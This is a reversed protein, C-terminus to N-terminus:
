AGKHYTSRRCLRFSSDCEGFHLQHEKGNGKRERLSILLCDSILMDIRQSALQWGQTTKWGSPSQPSLHPM